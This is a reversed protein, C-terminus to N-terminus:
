EAVLGGSGNSGPPGANGNQGNSGTHGPNGGTGGSGGPTGIIGAGGAQGSNSGESGGNGGAGGPRGVPSGGPGGGAGHAGDCSGPLGNSGNGADAGNVGNAGDTGGSADHAVVTVRELTVAPANDARIGYVSVGRDASDPRRAEVSLLQLKTPTTVGVANVGVTRGALIANNLLVTPSTASRAWSSPSYGGYIGVGSALDLGGAPVAHIGSALYVDKQPSASNARVVAAAVTQLPAERTGAAGDNGALGDVVFIAGAANGDIGDCNTEQFLLDPPDTPEPISPRTPQQATMGGM